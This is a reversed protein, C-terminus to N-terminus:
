NGVTLDSVVLVLSSSTPVLTSDGSAYDGRV